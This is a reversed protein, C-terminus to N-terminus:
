EKGRLELFMEMLALEPQVNTRLREKYKLVIEMGSAIELASLPIDNERSRLIDEYVLTADPNLNFALLDSQFAVLGDLIFALSDPTRYFRAGDRRMVLAAEDGGDLLAKVLSSLLSLSALTAEDQSLALAEERSTTARAILLASTRPLGRSLLGQVIADTSGPLLTVVQARSRITPLVSKANECLLLGYDDAKLEELFKLLKQSSSLALSELSEIVFVRAGGELSSLSFEHELEDIMALTIVGKEPSVRFLSPHDHHSVRLCAPCKGCPKKERDSNDCFVLSAFYDAIEDKPSGRRGEILYVNVLRNKLFSAKFFACASPQSKELEARTM